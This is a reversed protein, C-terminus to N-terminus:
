EPPMAFRQRINNIAYIASDKVDPIRSHIHKELLVLDGPEGIAGLVANAYMLEFKYQKEDVQRVWYRVAERSADTNSKGLAMIASHRVMWEGSKSCAVIASIDIGESLPLCGIGSLMTHLVYKNTEANLRDVLFQCHEPEFTKLLLKALVAYANERIETESKQTRREIFERLHHFVENGKIHEERKWFRWQPAELTNIVSDPLSMEDLLSFLTDKTM